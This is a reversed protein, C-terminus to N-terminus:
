NLQILAGKVTMTGSAKIETQTSDINTNTATTNLDQAAEIDLDTMSKIAVGSGFVELSGDCLNATAAATGDICGESNNAFTNGIVSAAGEGVRVGFRNNDLITNGTITTFSTAGTALIGSNSGGSGNTVGKVYNGSIVASAFTAIADGGFAGNDFLINSSIVTQAANNLIANVAYGYITNESIVATGDNVIGQDPNGRSGSIPNGNIVNRVIRTSCNGYSADNRIVPGFGTFTNETIAASCNIDGAPGEFDTHIPSGGLFTNQSIFADSNLIYISDLGGGGNEEFVNGTIVATSLFLSIARRNEVFDNAYIRPSSEESFIAAPGKDGIGVSQFGTFRNETIIPSSNQDLIGFAGSIGGTDGTFTIGSIKVGTLNIASICAFDLDSTPDSTDPKLVVLDLGAGKLHVYSKMQVSEVYTGAAVEIVYPRDADPDLANLADQIRTYDGGGGPAVVVLNPKAWKEKDEQKSLVSQGFIVLTLLFMGSLLATKRLSRANM